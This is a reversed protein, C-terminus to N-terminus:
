GSFAGPEINDLSNSGLYLVKLTPIFNFATSQIAYLDNGHLYVTHLQNLQSIEDPIRTLKNYALYVGSLPSVAPNNIFSKLM